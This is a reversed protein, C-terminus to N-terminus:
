SVLGEPSGNVLVTGDVIHESIERLAAALAERNEQRQAEVDAYFEGPCYRRAAEQMTARLADLQISATQAFTAVDKMDQYSLNEILEGFENDTENLKGAVLELNENTPKKGEESELNEVMVKEREVTNARSLLKGTNEAGAIGKMASATALITGLLRWIRMSGIAKGKTTEIEQTDKGIM